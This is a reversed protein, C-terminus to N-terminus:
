KKKLFSCDLLEYVEDSLPDEGSDRDIRNWLACLPDNMVPTVTMAARTQELADQWRGVHAYAEIFPIREM